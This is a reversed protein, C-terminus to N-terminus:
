DKLAGSTLGSILYRRVLLAFLLSPLLVLTSGAAIKGWEWGLFSTYAMIAIPATQAQARTLILAFFFDNWALLFSFIAVTLVGPVALPLTVHVFARWTTAGDIHAAEELSRPVEQFFLQAMWVVLPLNITLYIISLGAITDILGLANFALYFPLAFAIPPVMRASLIWLRLLTEHRLVIRSLAYAGPIGLALSLVTTLISAEFSHAISSLFPGKFLDSYNKLSPVFIFKPPMHFAEVETKLSMQVLWFVPGLAFCLFPVMLIVRGIGALSATGRRGGLPFSSM